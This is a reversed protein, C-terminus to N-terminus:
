KGYTKHYYQEARTEDNMIKFVQADKFTNIIQEKEKSLKGLCRLRITELTTRSEDTLDDDYTLHEVIEDILEQIVTKKPIEKNIEYSEVTKDNYTVTILKTPINEKDLTDITPPIFHLRGLTTEYHWIRESMSLEREEIKLGWKEAFETDTKVMDVFEDKTMRRTEINHGEYQFTKEADPHSNWYNEYVEDLLEQQEKNM